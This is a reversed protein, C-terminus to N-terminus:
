LNLQLYIQVGRTYKFPLKKLLHLLSLRFHGGRDVGRGRPFPPLETRNGRVIDTQLFTTLSFSLYTPQASWFLFYCFWFVVSIRVLSSVAQPEGQHQHLGTSSPSPSQGKRTAHHTHTCPLNLFGGTPLERVNGFKEADETM